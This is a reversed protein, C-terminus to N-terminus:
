KLMFAVCVDKYMAEYPSINVNRVYPSIKTVKYQYNTFFVIACRGELGDTAIQFREFGIGSGQFNNGDRKSFPKFQHPSFRPNLKQMTVFRFKNSILVDANSNLVGLTVDPDRSIIRPTAARDPKGDLSITFGENGVGEFTFRCLNKAFLCMDPRQAVICSAFLSILIFFIFQM